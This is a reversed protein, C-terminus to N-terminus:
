GLTWTLFILYCRFPRRPGKKESFCYAMVYVLSHVIVSLSYALVRRQIAAETNVGEEFLSIFNAYYIYGLFAWCGCGCLSTMIKGFKTPRFIYCSVVIYGLFGWNGTIAAIILWAKMASSLEGLGDGFFNSAPNVASLGQVTINRLELPEAFVPTNSLADVQFSSQCIYRLFIVIVPIIACIFSYGATELIFSRLLGPKGEFEARMNKAHLSIQPTIPAVEEKEDEPKISEDEPKITATM